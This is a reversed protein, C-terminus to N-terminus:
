DFVASDLSEWFHEISPYALRVGLEAVMRENSARKDATARLAVPADPPPPVFRPLPVALREALGAYYTRREVPHGDSVIYTRPPKGRQEAAVVVAAADDAHILNLYGHM